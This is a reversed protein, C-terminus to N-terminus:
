PTIASVLIISNNYAIMLDSIDTFNDGTVDTKIYGSALAIMDNYIDTIDTVDINGDLNEDGSYIAYKLPSHDVSIQNSAYAAAIALPFPYNYIAGFTYAEGGAKSWTEICNRHKLQIYYTGSTVNYFKFIGRHLVSDILGSSSDAVPYPSVASRLYARVTDRMNMLNSASDYFGQMVVGINLTLTKLFWPKATEDTKFFNVLMNAVKIRGAASPHTGDSIYDTPCLWTLGDIRPTTGDAWLYPGWSLWPSNPTTGKYNLNVDGNIQDEIMWKVSWGSYYAYPEPNLATTAYGAYIRSANYCLKLNVFKGKMVNMAIKFKNKLSVPYNPFTTDSPTSEAEKFWVAQVQKATVGAQALLQNVVTWYANSPNNITDITKGGQAGNVIVLKPNLYAAGTVTQIFTQFEQNTNSLGISILVVKGTTPNYNGATDLPVVQLGLNLGDDNHATPRTNSGFPYLGGQYSTRFYGTGLDNIPPFGVSTVGCSQSFLNQSSLFITYIVLVSYFNKM